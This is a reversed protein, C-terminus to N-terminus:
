YSTCFILASCTSLLVRIPIADQSEHCGGFTCRVLMGNQSPFLNELNPINQRPLNSERDFKETSGDLIKGCEQVAEDVRKKVRLDADSKLVMATYKSRPYHKNLSNALSQLFEKKYFQFAHYGAREVAHLDVGCFRCLYSGPLPETDPYFMDSPHLGSYCQVVLDMLDMLEPDQVGYSIGCLTVAAKDVSTVSMLLKRHKEIHNSAPALLNSSDGFIDLASSQIESDLQSVFLVTSSPLPIGGLAPDLPFPSTSLANGPLDKTEQGAIRVV